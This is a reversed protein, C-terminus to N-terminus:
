LGESLPVIELNSDEEISELLTVAAARHRQKSLTNGIELVVARTTVIRRRAEEIDLSLKMAREHYQDSVAALAIAFSADM